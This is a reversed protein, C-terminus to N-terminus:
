SGELKPFHVNVKISLKPILFFDLVKNLPEELLNLLVANVKLTKWFFLSGCLM